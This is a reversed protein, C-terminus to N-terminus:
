HFVSQCLSHALVHIAPLSNGKTKLYENYGKKLYEEMSQSRDTESWKRQLEIMRAKAEMMDKTLPDNRERGVPSSRNGVPSSRNSVPSSRNQKTTNPKYMRRKPMAKQWAIDFLVSSPVFESIFCRLVTLLIM